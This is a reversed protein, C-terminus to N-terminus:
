SMAKTSLHSGSSRCPAQVSPAPPKSCRGHTSRHRESWCHLVNGACSRRCSPTSGRSHGGTDTPSSACHSDLRCPPVDQRSLYHPDYKFEFYGDLSRHLMGTKVGYLRVELAGPRDNIVKPQYATVM